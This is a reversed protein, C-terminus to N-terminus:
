DASEELESPDSQYEQLLELSSPPSRKSEDHLIQPLAIVPSTQSQEERDEPEPKTHESKAANLDEMASKCLEMFKDEWAGVLNSAFSFFSIGIHRPHLDNKGFSIEELTHNQTFPVTEGSRNAMFNCEAFYKLYVQMFQSVIDRREYCIIQGLRTHDPVHKNAADGPIKQIVRTEPDSPHSYTLDFRVNAIPTTM